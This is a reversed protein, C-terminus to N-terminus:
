EFWSEFSRELERWNWALRQAWNVPQDGPLVDARVFDKPPEFLSKDLPRESFELVERTSAYSRVPYGAPVPFTVTHKEQLAFGLKQRRATSLSPTAANGRVVWAFLPKIACKDRLLCSTGAM